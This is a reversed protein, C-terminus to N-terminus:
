YNFRIAVSGKNGSQGAFGTKVKSTRIQNIHIKQEDKAFLLIYCGVMAKRSICVYKTKKCLSKTIIQEWLM